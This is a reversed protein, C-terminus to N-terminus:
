FVIKTKWQEKVTKCYNIGGVGGKEPYMRWFNVYSIPGSESFSVSQHCFRHLQEGLRNIRRKCLIPNCKRGRKCNSTAMLRPKTWRFKLPLSRHCKPAQNMYFESLLHKMNNGRRDPEHPFSSPPRHLWSLPPAM